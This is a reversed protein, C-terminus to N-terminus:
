PASRPSPSREPLRSADIGGVSLTAGTELQRDITIPLDSVQLGDISRLQGDVWDVFGTHAPSATPRPGADAMVQNGARLTETSAFVAPDITARCRPKLIGADAAPAVLAAVVLVLIALTRTRM